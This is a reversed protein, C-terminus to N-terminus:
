KWRALEIEIEGWYYEEPIRNRQDRGMNMMRDIVLRKIDDWFMALGYVVGLVFALLPYGQGNLREATSPDFVWLLLLLMGVPKIAWVLREQMLTNSKSLEELSASNKAAM